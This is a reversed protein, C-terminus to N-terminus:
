VILYIDIKNFDEITMVGGLEDLRDVILHTRDHGVQKIKRLDEVMATSIHLKAEAMDSVVM